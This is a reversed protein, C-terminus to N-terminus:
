KTKWSVTAAQAAWSGISAPPGGSLETTCVAASGPSDRDAAWRRRLLLFPSEFSQWLLIPREPLGEQADHTDTSFSSTVLAGLSPDATHNESHASPGRATHSRSSHDKPRVGQKLTHAPVM